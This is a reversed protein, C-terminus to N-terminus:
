DVHSIRLRTGVVQEIIIQFRVNVLRVFTSTRPTQVRYTRGSSKAFSGCDTSMAAIYAAGLADPLGPRVKEYTSPFETGVTVCRKEIVTLGTNDMGDYTLAQVTMIQNRYTTVAIMLEDGPDVVKTLSVDTTDTGNADAYHWSSRYEQASPSSRWPGDPDHQARLLMSMAVLMVQLSGRRSPPRLHPVFTTLFRSRHFSVDVVHLPESTSMERHTVACKDYEKIPIPDDLLNRVINPALNV